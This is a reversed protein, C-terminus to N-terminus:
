TVAVPATLGQLNEPELVDVTLPTERNITLFVMGAISLLVLLAIGPRLLVGFRQSRLARLVLLLFLLVGLLSVAGYFLNGFLRLGQGGGDSAPLKSVLTFAFLLHFLLFAGGIGLVLLFIRRRDPPPSAGGPIEGSAPSAVGDLPVNGGAGANEASSDTGDPM